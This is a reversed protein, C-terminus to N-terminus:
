VGRESPLPAHSGPHIALRRELWQAAEAVGALPHLLPKRPRDIMVVPLRLRRAAEIKGYTAAGGSNKSVVIEIRHEMMLRAEAEADFPGRDRLIIMRPPLPVDRPIDIVRALYSHQPAAAFSPLEVRGVTLFVVRPAAGLAAAAAEPSPAPIWRDDPRPAWATRIMTALPVGTAAAAEVANASIRAAFPHTADIMAAVGERRLWSALGEPGGFGGVRHPVPPIVPAATRGALSLTPAFRRDNALRRALASAEATGGLILIRM